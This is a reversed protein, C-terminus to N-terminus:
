DNRRGPRKGVARDNGSRRVPSALVSVGVDGTEALRRELYLREADNGALALAERYAATAEPSRGLRRLLDARTAPLLHYGPLEASLREVLALGAAPGEAMGVAVARNLRVVPSPVLEALRDYLAVIQPWDTAAADAATAHCAAIAAQIQYPGPRGLRPAEELLEVGEAIAARDWRSRDQHELTVLSGDRDVRTASTDWIRYGGPVGKAM